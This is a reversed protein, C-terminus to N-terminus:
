ERRYFYLFFVPLGIVLLFIGETIIPGLHVMSYCFVVVPMLHIRVFVKLVKHKAIIDALFPSSKNYFDVLKRGLKYPMLYEDRFDRLIEVYPHLSSGYIATAIFCGGGNGGGEDTPTPPPTTATFNATISKDSDMRVTIQSRTGSVDGSWGSFQYGSSPIAQVSVQAMLSYTHNGPAPNTTGGTAASITLIYEQCIDTVNADTPVPSISTDSPLALTDGPTINTSGPSVSTSLVSANSTGIFGCSPNMDGDSFLKLVWIDSGWFAGLLGTEGTVIYGGDSTQQISRADDGWDSAGYTRQWEIAGASSLKLIWADSFGAGFSLTRGAVIYGGDSTQQVSYAEDLDSGGYTQQWNVTGTSSLKLVWIDKHGAGFSFTFGTVIYGGDSTQQISYSYDSDSGGYTRQWDITGTSSLKLVWFDGGGAGFSYTCGAVIYGGDSTQQISYARDGDGGEYTQQWDITGTSSLKLVWIVAEFGGIFSWTEGAVIYGGDSTQQISYAEDDDSGGYTRQWDITGTSSLKLVWIDSGGAGFSYTSGAVIYGGDSTQHIFPNYEDNSGGYTHQWDITGTSSLKLVWIDDRGAGFSFTFGAVIYGGDSTQQISYGYDSDSGGYARAWQAYLPMLSSFIFFFMM